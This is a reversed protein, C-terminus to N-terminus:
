TKPTIKDTFVVLRASFSKRADNWAGQCTILNLHANGDNSAFVAATNEDPNYVRSERVVFTVSVGKEDEVSVVDGRQLAHLNDFVARANKYGFHGDIVASGADGPRPGHAFWAATTPGSPSGLEGSPTIGVQELAADVGIKPIKLRVPLGANAGKPPIIKIPTHPSAAPVPPPKPSAVPQRLMSYAAFGLGLTLEVLIICYFTRRTKTKSTRM